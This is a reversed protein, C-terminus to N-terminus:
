SESTAIKKLALHFDEAIDAREFHEVVYKRAKVGYKESFERDKYMDLVTEALTKPNEPEVSVGAEAKELVERAVWDIAM